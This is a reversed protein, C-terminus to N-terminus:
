KAGRQNSWMYRFCTMYGSILGLTNIDNTHAAWRTRKFYIKVKIEIYIINEIKTKKNAWFILKLQVSTEKNLRYIALKM